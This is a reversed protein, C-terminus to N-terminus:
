HFYLRERCNRAVLKPQISRTQHMSFGRYRFAMGWTINAPHVQIPSRLLQRNAPILNGKATMTRLPRNALLEPLPTMILVAAEVSLELRPMLLTLGLILHCCM